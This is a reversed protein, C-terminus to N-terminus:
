SNKMNDAMAKGMKQYKIMVNDSPQIELNMAAAVAVNPDVNAPPTEDENTEESTEEDAVEEGDNTEDEEATETTEDEEATETSNEESTEDANALEDEVAKRLSILEDKYSAFTEDDMERVKVTQAEKDSLAVGASTLEGMRVEAAKDKKMEEIKNETDVLKENSQEVEAQAAELETTLNKINGELDVLKSSMEEEKTNKEELSTTLDSIVEASKILENETKEIKNAEENQSFIEAVIAEIDKKLKDEM